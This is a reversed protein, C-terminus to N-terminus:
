IHMCTHRTYQTDQRRTNWEIIKCITQDTCISICFQKTSRRRCHPCCCCYFCYLYLNTHIQKKKQKNSCQVHTTHSHVINPKEIYKNCVCVCLYVFLESVMLPVPSLDWSLCDHTHIGCVLIYTTYWVVHKRINLRVCVCVEVDVHIWNVLSSHVFM